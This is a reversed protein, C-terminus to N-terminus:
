QAKDGAFLSIERDMEAAISGISIGTIYDFMNLESIQKNGLLKTLLFMIIISGVAALFSKLLFM